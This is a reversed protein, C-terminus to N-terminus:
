LLDQDDKAAQSIQNPQFNQISQSDNENLAGNDLSKLDNATAQKALL